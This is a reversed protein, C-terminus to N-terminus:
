SARGYKGRFARGQTKLYQLKRLSPNLYFVCLYSIKALYISVAPHHMCDSADGYAGDAQSIDASANTLVVPLSNPFPVSHWSFSRSGNLQTVDSTVGLSSSRGPPWYTSTTM